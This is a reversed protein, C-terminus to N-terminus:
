GLVYRSFAFVDHKGEDRSNMGPVLLEIIEGQNLHTWTRRVGCGGCVATSTTWIRLSLDKRPANAQGWAAHRGGAAITYKRLTATDWFWFQVILTM